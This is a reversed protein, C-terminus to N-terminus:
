CKFIKKYLRDLEDNTFCQEVNKRAKQGSLKNKIENFWKINGLHQKIKQNEFRIQQDLDERTAQALRKGNALLYAMWNSAAMLELGRTRAPNINVQPRAKISARAEAFSVADAIRQNVIPEILKKYLAPNKAIWRKVYFGINGKGHIEIARRALEELSNVDSFSEIKHEPM